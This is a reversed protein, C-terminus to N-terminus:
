KVRASVIPGRKRLIKKVLHDDELRNRPDVLAPELLLVVSCGVIVTHVVVIVMHVAVIVTRVVVKVMHVVVKVMHEVVATVMYAVVMVTHGAVTVMHVAVMVTHGALIRLMCGKYHAAMQFPFFPFLFVFCHDAVLAVFVVSVM